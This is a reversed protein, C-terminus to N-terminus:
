SEGLYRGVLVLADDSSDGYEALIQEAASQPPLSSALGRDFGLKVGDTAFVVTDGRDIPLVAAELAPLRVGVVGARLLLGNEVATGGLKHRVVVGQVNGVGVWTLQRSEGDISAVSMVVGRSGYLKQHCRQILAVVPEEAYEEVVGRAQDAVWAAESGHGIGDIVAALVGQPVAKVLYLDGSDSHGPKTLAASAWEVLPM